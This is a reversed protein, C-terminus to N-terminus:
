LAESWKESWGPHGFTQRTLMQLTTLFRHGNPEKSYCFTYGNIRGDCMYKSQDKTKSIEDPRVGVVGLLAVFSAHTATAGSHPDVALRRVESHWQGAAAM